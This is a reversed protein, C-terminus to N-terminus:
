STDKRGQLRAVIDKDLDTRMNELSKKTISKEENLREVYARVIQRVIEEVTRLFQGPSTATKSGRLSESLSKGDHVIDSRAAYLARLTAHSAGVERNTENLLAAVGRLAFKYALEHREGFCLCSELTIALDVISDEASQRAFSQNFRRLTVGLPYKESARLRQLKKTLAAAHKVGDTTVTTKTESLGSRVIGVPWHSRGRGPIPGRDVSFVMGTAVDGPTTLRLATVFDMVETKIEQSAHEDLHSVEKATLKMTAEQFESLRFSEASEYSWPGWFEAKEEDTFQSLTLRNSVKESTETDCVVNVLPVFVDFTLDVGRRLEHGIDYTAQIQADTLSLSDTERLAEMLPFITAFAEDQATADSALFNGWGSESNLVDLAPRFEPLDAIDQRHLWLHFEYAHDDIVRTTPGPGFNIKAIPRGMRGRQREWESLRALVERILAHYLARADRISAESPEKSGAGSTDTDTLTGDTHGGQRAPISDDTM